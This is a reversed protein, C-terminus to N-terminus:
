RGSERVSEYRAMCKNAPNQCYTRAEKASVGIVKWTQNDMATPRFIDILELGAESSFIFGIGAKQQEYIDDPLLGAHHALFQRQFNGYHMLMWNQIRDLETGTLLDPDRHAKVLLEGLDENEIVLADVEAAGTIFSDIRDAEVARTTNRFELGVFALGIVVALNTVIATWKTLLDSNM